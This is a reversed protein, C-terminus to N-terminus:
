ECDECGGDRKARKLTRESVNLMAAAEANTKEFPGIPRNPNGKPMNAIKAGVM